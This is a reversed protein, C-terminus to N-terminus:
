GRLRMGFGCRPLKVGAAEDWHRVEPSKVEVVGDWLWM